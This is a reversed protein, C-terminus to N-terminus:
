EEKMARVAERKGEGEEKMARMIQAQTRHVNKVMAVENKLGDLEDKAPKKLDHL